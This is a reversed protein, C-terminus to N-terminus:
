WLLSETIHILTLNFLLPILVASQPVGKEVTYFHTPRNATSVYIKQEELYSEIWKYLHEELCLNEGNKWSPSFPMIFSQTSLQRSTSSYPQWFEVQPSTRKLPLFLPSSVTSLRGAKAYGMWKKYFKNHSKLFWTFQKHVLREMPKGVCSMLTVFIQVKLHPM